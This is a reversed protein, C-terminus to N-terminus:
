QTSFKFVILAISKDPFQKRFYLRQIENFCFIVFFFEVYRNLSYKHREDMSINVNNLNSYADLNVITIQM